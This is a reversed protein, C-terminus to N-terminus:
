VTYSSSPLHKRQFRPFDGNKRQRNLIGGQKNSFALDIPKNFEGSYPYKGIWLCGQGYFALEGRWNQYFEDFSLSGLLTSIEPTGSTRRDSLCM